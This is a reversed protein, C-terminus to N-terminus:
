RSEVARLFRAKIADALAARSDRPADDASCALWISGILRSLVGSHVFLTESPVDLLPGLADRTTIGYALRIIAAPNALDPRRVAALFLRRRGMIPGMPRDAVAIARIADLLQDLTRFDRTPAPAAEPPTTPDRTMVLVQGRIAGAVLDEVTRFHHTVAGTTVGARAAVARHTLGSLGRDEVV